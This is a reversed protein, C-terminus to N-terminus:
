MCGGGDRDETLRGVASDIGRVKADGEHEELCFFPLYVGTDTEAETEQRHYPQSIGELNPTDLHPYIFYHMLIENRLQLNYVLM